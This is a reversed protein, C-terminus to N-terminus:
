LSRERVDEVTFGLRGAASLIESRLQEVQRGGHAHSWASSLKALPMPGPQATKAMM